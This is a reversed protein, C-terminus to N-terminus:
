SCFIGFEKFCIQTLFNLWNYAYNAEMHYGYTKDESLNKFDVYTELLSRFVVPVAISKKNEVLFILSDSYEILSLYLAILNRHWLHQKDFKLFEMHNQADKIENNYTEMNM